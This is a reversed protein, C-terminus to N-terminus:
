KEEKEDEETIKEVAKEKVDEEMNKRVQAM